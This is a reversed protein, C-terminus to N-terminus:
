IIGGAKGIADIINRCQSFAKLTQPTNEVDMWPNIEYRVDFFDPACLLIRM